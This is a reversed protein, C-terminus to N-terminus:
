SSTQPLPPHPHLSSVIRSPTRPPGPFVQLNAKQVKYCRQLVVPPWYRFQFTLRLGKINVYRAKLLDLTGNERFNINYM